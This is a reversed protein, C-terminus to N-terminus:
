EVSGLFHQVTHVRPGLSRSLCLAEGWEWSSGADLAKRRDRGGGGGEERGDEEEEEWDGVRELEGLLATTPSGGVGGSYPHTHTKRPYLGTLVHLPAHPIPHPFSGPFGSYQSLSPGPVM